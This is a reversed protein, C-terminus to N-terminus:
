DYHVTPNPIEFTGADSAIFVLGSGIGTPCCVTPPANLRGMHYVIMGFAATGGNPNLSNAPLGLRAGNAGVFDITGDAQLISAVEPYRGKFPGKTQKHSGPVIYAATQGVRVAGIGPTTVADPPDLGPPWAYYTDRGDIFQGIIVGEATDYAEVSRGDGLSCAIHGGNGFGDQGEDAGHFKWAGKSSAAQAATLGTGVTMSGTYPDAGFKDQMWQPRPAAHCLRALYASNTCGLAVVPQINAVKAGYVQLGSCDFYGNDGTCRSPGQSYDDDVKALQADVFVDVQGM